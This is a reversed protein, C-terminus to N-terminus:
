SSGAAFFTSPIHSLSVKGVLRIAPEALPSKAGCGRRVKADFAATLFVTAKDRKGETKQVSRALFAHLTGLFTGL